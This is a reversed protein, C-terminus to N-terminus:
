ILPKRLTLSIRRTGLLLETYIISVRFYTSLFVGKGAGPMASATISLDFGFDRLLIERNKRGCEDFLKRRSTTDRGFILLATEVSTCPNEFRYLMEKLCNEIEKSSFRGKSEKDIQITSSDETFINGNNSLQSNSRGDNSAGFSKAASINSM